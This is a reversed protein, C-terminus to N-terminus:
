PVSSDERIRALRDQALVPLLDDVLLVLLLAEGVDEYVEVGLDRRQRAHRSRDRLFALLFGCPLDLDRLPEAGLGPVAHDRVEFREVLVAVGLAGRDAVADVFRAAIRVIEPSLVTRLARKAM